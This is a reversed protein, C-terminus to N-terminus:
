PMQQTLLVQYGICMQKLKGSFINEVMEDEKLAQMGDDHLIKLMLERDNVVFKQIYMACHKPFFDSLENILVGIQQTTPRSDTMDDVFSSINDMLIDDRIPTAIDDDGPTAQDFWFTRVLKDLHEERAQVAFLPRQYKLREETQPTLCIYNASSPVAERVPRYEKLAVDWPEPLSDYYERMTRGCPYEEVLNNQRHPSGGVAATGDRPAQIM